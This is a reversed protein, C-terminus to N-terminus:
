FLWFLIGVWLGVIFLLSGFTFQIFTKQNVGAEIVAINPQSPNYFVNVRTKVPYKNVIKNAYKRNSSSIGGVGFFITDGTLM